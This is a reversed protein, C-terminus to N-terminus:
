ATSEKMTDRQMRKRKNQRTYIGGRGCAVFFSPFSSFLLFDYLDSFRGSYWMRRKGKLINSSWPESPSALPVSIGGLGIVSHPHFPRYTEKEENKKRERQEFSFVLLSGIFVDRKSDQRSDCLKTQISCPPQRTKTAREGIVSTIEFGATIPQKITARPVVLQVGSLSRSGIRNSSVRLDFLAFMSRVLFSVSTLSPYDRVM